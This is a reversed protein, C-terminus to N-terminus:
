FATPPKKALAAPVTDAAGPRPSPLLVLMAALGALLLGSLLVRRSRMLPPTRPPLPAVTEPGPLSTANSEIPFGAAMSSDAPSVPRKWYLRNYLAVLRTDTDPHGCSGLLTGGISGRSRATAAVVGSAAGGQRGSARAM